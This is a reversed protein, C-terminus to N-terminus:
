ALSPLVIIRNMKKKWIVQAFTQITARRPSLCIFIFFWTLIRENTIWALSSPHRLNQHYWHLYLYILELFMKSTSRVLIVISQICSTLFLSADFFDSNRTEAVQFITLCLSVLSSCTKRSHLYDLSDVKIEMTSMKQIGCMEIKLVELSPDSFHLSLLLWGSKM